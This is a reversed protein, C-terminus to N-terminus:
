LIVAEPGQYVIEGAGLATLASPILEVYHGSISNFSPSQAANGNPVTAPQGFSDFREQNPDFQFKFVIYPGDPQQNNNTNCSSFCLSIIFALPLPIYKM